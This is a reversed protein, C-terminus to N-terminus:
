ATAEAKEAEAQSPQVEEKGKGANVQAEHPHEPGAYVKLHRLIKRGLRNHPIMGKVAAQVIREPHRELVRMYPTETLGGPYGSHSYYIKQRSKAGTVRVKDANIVVVFDGNDMHPTYTPRYKGRLLHTVETAIRGLTRDAADVVHWRVEVDKSSLSYTKRNM